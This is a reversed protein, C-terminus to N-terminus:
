AVSGATARIPLSPGSAAVRAYTREYDAIM